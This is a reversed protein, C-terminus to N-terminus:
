KVKRDEGLPLSSKRQSCKRCYNKDRWREAGCRLCDGQAALRERRKRAREAARERMRPSSAYLLRQAAAYAERARDAATM